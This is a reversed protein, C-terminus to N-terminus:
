TKESLRQFNLSLNLKFLACNKGKLFGLKFRTKIAEFERQTEEQTGLEAGEENGKEKQSKRGFKAYVLIHDLTTRIGKEKLQLLGLGQRIVMKGKWRVAM